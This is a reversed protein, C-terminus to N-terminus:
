SRRKLRVLIPLGTAAMQFLHRAQAALTNNRDGAPASRVKGVANAV